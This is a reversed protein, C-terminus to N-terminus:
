VRQKQSSAYWSAVRAPAAACRKRFSLLPSAYLLGIIPIRAQVVRERAWDRKTFFDVRLVVYDCDNAQTTSDRDWAESDPMKLFQNNRALQRNCRLM